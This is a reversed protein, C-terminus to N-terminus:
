VCVVGIAGLTPGRMVDEEDARRRTDAQNPPPAREGTM